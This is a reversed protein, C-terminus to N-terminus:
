VWAGTSPSNQRCFSSTNVPLSDTPKGGSPCKGQQNFSFSKRRSQLQLPNWSGSSFSICQGVHWFQSCSAQKSFSTLLCVQRPCSSSPASTTADPASLSVSGVAVVEVVAGSASTMSGCVVTAEWAEVAGVGLDLALGDAALSKRLLWDHSERGSAVIEIRAPAFFRATSAGFSLLNLACSSTLCITSSCPLCVSVAVPFTKM